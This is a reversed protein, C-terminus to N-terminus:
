EVPAAPLAALAEQPWLTRDAPWLRPEAEGAVSWSAFIGQTGRDLYLLAWDEDCTFKICAQGLYGSTTLDGSGLDSIREAFAPYDPGLGAELAQLVPAIALAEAPHAGALSDFSEWGASATFARAEGAAFGQGPTWVWVEGPFGPLPDSTFVLTEAEVSPVLYACSDVPGFFGPTGGEPLALVFPAANCANGGSGAAGTVVALGGLDQVLPDLYIVGNEHLVVGDVELGATAIGDGTVVIQHGAVTITEEASVVATWGLWM